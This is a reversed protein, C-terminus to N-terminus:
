KPEGSGKPILKAYDYFGNTKSSRPDKHAGATESAMEKLLELYHIAKELDQIGNKTRWRCVYKIVNGEIFPINNVHIFRVPEIVFDKYHSGGVQNDEANM